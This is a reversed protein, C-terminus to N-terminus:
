ICTINVFITFIAVVTSSFGILMLLLCALSHSLFLCFFLFKKSFFYVFM